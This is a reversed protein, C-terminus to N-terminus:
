RHRPVTPITPTARSKKRTNWMRNGCNIGRTVSFACCAECAVPLQQCQQCVRTIRRRRAHLQRPGPAAGEMQRERDGVMAAPVRHGCLPRRRAARALRGITPRSDLPPWPARDCLLLLPRAMTRTSGPSQSFRLNPACNPFEAESVGVRSSRSGRPDEGRVRAPGGPFFIRSAMRRSGNYVPVLVSGVLSSKPRLRHHALMKVRAALRAPGSLSWPAPPAAAEQTNM